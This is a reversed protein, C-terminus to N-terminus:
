VCNGVIINESTKSIPVSRLLYILMWKSASLFGGGKELLLRFMGIVCHIM